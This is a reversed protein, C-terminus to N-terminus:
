QGLWECLVVLLWCLSEIDAWATRHAPRCCPLVLLWSLFVNLADGPGNAAPEAAVSDTNM